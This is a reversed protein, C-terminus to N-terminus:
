DIGLEKIVDEDPKNFIGKKLRKLENKARELKTTRLQLSERLHIIDEELESIKSRLTDNDKQLNSSRETLTGNTHMLNMVNEFQERLAPLAQIDAKDAERAEKEAQKEEFYMTETTLDVDFSEVYEVARPVFDKKLMGHKKCYEEIRDSVSINVALTTINSPNKAEKKQKDSVKPM